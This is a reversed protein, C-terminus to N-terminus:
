GWVMKFKVADAKNDFHFKDMDNIDIGRNTHMFLWDKIATDPRKGKNYLLFSYVTTKLGSIGWSSRWGEYDIHKWCWLWAELAERSNALKVVQM